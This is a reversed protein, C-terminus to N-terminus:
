FRGRRKERALALRRVNAYMDLIIYDALLGFIGGNKSELSGCVARAADRAGKKSSHVMMPEGAIAPRAISLVCM